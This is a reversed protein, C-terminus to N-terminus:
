DWCSREDRKQDRKSFDPQQSCSLPDGHEEYEHSKKGTTLVFHQALTRATSHPCDQQPPPLAQCSSIKCSQAIPCQCFLNTLKKRSWVPVNREPSGFYSCLTLTLVWPTVLQSPLALFPCKNFSSAFNLRWSQKGAQLIEKLSRCKQSAWSLCWSGREGAGSPLFLSPFFLNQKFPLPSRPLPKLLFPLLSLSHWSSPKM